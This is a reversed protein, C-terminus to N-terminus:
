KNFAKKLLLNKDNNVLILKKHTQDHYKKLSIEQKKYNDDFFIPTILLNDDEREFVVLGPLDIERINASPKPYKYLCPIDFNSENEFRSSAKDLYRHSHGSLEIYNFKFPSFLNEKDVGEKDIDNVLSMYNKLSHFILIKLGNINYPSFGMGDVIINQNNLFKDLIKQNVIDPRIFFSNMDHNGLTLYCIANNDLKFTDYAYEIEELLIDEYKEKKQNSINPMSEVFDGCHFVIKINRNSIEKNLLEVYKKYSIDEKEKYNYHTDAVVIFKDCNINNEFNRIYNDNKTPTFKPELKYPRNNDLYCQFRILIGKLIRIDEISLNNKHKEAYELVDEVIKIADMKNEINIWKDKKDNILRDREKKIKKLEDM